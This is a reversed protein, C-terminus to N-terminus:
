RLRYASRLLAEDKRVGHIAMVNFIIGLLPLIAMFPLHYRVDGDTLNASVQSLYIYVYAAYTAVYGVLLITSFILLRLQRLLHRFLMISMLNILIVLILLVGLAWPGSSEVTASHFNFNGFSAIETTGCLYTGIKSFLTSSCLIVTLFMYVTQIRQIM